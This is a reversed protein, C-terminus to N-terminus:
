ELNFLISALGALTVTPIFGDLQDTIDIVELLQLSGIGGWLFIALIGGLVDFVTGFVPIRGVFFDAVDFAISLILKLITKIVEM